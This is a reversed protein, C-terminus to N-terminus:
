VSLIMFISYVMMTMTFFIIIGHLIFKFVRKKSVITESHIQELQDSIIKNHDIIEQLRKDLLNQTERLRSVDNKLMVIYDEYNM